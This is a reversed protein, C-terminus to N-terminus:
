VGGKGAIGIGKEFHEQQGGLRLLEFGHEQSSEV